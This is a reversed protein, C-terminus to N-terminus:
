RSSPSLSHEVDGSHYIGARADDKMERPEKIESCRSGQRM